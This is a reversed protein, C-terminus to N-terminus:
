SLQETKGTKRTNLRFVRESHVFACPLRESWGFNHWLLFERVLLKRHDVLLDLFYRPVADADAQFRSDSVVMPTCAGILMWHAHM